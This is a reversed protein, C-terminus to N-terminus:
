SEEDPKGSELSMDPEVAPAQHLLKIVGAGSAILFEQDDCRVLTVDAHVSLRRSEIVEVRQLGSLRFSKMAEFSLKFPRGQRARLLLVVALAVLCCVLFAAFIRVPSIDNVINSHSLGRVAAAPVREISASITM